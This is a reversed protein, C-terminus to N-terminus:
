SLIAPRSQSLHVYLMKHKPHKMVHSPLSYFSLVDTIVKKKKEGEKEKEIREVVYTYVVNERPLFYHKIEEDTYHFKVM